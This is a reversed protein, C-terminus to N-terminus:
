LNAFIASPALMLNIEEQCEIRATVLNKQFNDSDEYSLEIALGAVQVREIFDADVIFVKGATAWSAKIVPCGNINMSGGVFDVGGAGPYYGKSYTSKVLAAYDTPSVIAYSANYNQAETNAVLDVLREVKDTASTTTSGSALGTTTAYFSANEKKFFDRTLMRPLTQTMFPLSNTMQKSFRSFGALYQQVIKVETLDYNNEAKVSGEVQFAINNTESLGERYFIYLGTDTQMTPVLDRFNIKQSPLIAQRPSYTAIPDGTLNGSLTMTKVEPLEIRVKGNASKLENHLKSVSFNGDGSAPFMDALKEELAKDLSKSSVEQGAATKTALKDFQGQMEKQFSKIDEVTAFNAADIASKVENALKVAEAADVGSKTANAKIQELTATMGKIENALIESM